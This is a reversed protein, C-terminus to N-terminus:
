RERRDLLDSSVSRGPTPPEVVSSSDSHWGPLSCIDKETQEIRDLIEQVRDKSLEESEEEESGEEKKVEELLSSSPEGTMEKDGDGGEEEANSGCQSPQREGLAVVWPQLFLDTAAQDKAAGDGEFTAQVIESGSLRREVGFQQEGDTNGKRAGQSVRDERSGTLTEDIGVRVTEAEITTINEKVELGIIPNHQDETLIQVRRVEEVGCVAGQNGDQLLICQESMVDSEKEASEERDEVLISNEEALKPGDEGMVGNGEALEAAGMGVGVKETVEREGRKLRVDEQIGNPAGSLEGQEGVQAKDPSSSPTISSVSSASPSSTSYAMDIDLDFKDPSSHLKAKHNVEAEHCSRDEEESLLLQDNLAIYPKRVKPPGPDPLVFTPFSLALECPRPPSRPPSDPERSGPEIAPSWPLPQSQSAALEPTDPSPYHHQQHIALSPNPTIPLEPDLFHPDSHLTAPSQLEALITQYDTPSMIVFTSVYVCPLTCCFFLVCVCACGLVSVMDHCSM